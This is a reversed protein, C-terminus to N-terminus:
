RRAYAGTEEEPDSVQEAADTARLYAGGIERERAKAPSLLPSCSDPRSLAAGRPWVVTVGQGMGWMSKQSGHVRMACSRSGVMFADWLGHVCVCHLQEALPQKVKCDERWSLQAGPM